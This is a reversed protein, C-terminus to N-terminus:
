NNTAEIPPYLLPRPNDDQEFVVAITRREKDVVIGELTRDPLYHACFQALVSAIGDLHRQNLVPGAESPSLWAGSNHADDLCQLARDITDSLTVERGSKDALETRLKQAKRWTALRVSVQKRNPQAAMVLLKSSTMGM